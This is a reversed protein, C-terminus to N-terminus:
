NRRQTNINSFKLFHVSIKIHDYFVIKMPSVSFSYTLVGLFPGKPESM